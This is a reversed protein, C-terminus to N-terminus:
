CTYSAPYAEKGTLEAVLARCRKRSKFVSRQHSIMEDGLGSVERHANSLIKIQVGIIKDLLRSITMKEESMTNEVLLNVATPARM